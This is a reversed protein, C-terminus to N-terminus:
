LGYRPMNHLVSGYAGSGIKNTEEWKWIDDNKTCDEVIDRFSPPIGIGVPKISLSHPIIWQVEGTKINKYYISNCKKSRMEEWGEPVENGDDKTPIDWQTIKKKFNSYFPSNRTKSLHMEWGAPLFMNNAPIGWQSIGSELNIYYLRKDKRKTSKQNKWCLNDM